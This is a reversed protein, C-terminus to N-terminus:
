VCRNYIGFGIASKRIRRSLEDFHKMFPIKPWLTKIEILNLLLMFLTSSSPPLAIDIPYRAQGPESPEKVESLSAQNLEQSSARAM